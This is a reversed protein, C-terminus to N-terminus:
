TEKQGLRKLEEQYEELFPELYALRALYGQLEGQLQQYAQLAASADQAEPALRRRCAAAKVRMLYAELEANDMQAQIERQKVENSISM